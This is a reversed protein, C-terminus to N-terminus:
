VHRTVKRCIPLKGEQLYSHIGQWVDGHKSSLFSNRLGEFETNILKSGNSVVYGADSHWKHIRSAELDLGELTMLPAYVESGPVTQHRPASVFM